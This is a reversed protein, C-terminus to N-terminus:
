TQYLIKVRQLVSLRCDEHSALIWLDRPADEEFIDDEFAPKDDAPYLVATSSGFVSSFAHAAGELTRRPVPKLKVVM